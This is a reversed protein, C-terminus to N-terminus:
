GTIEDRNLMELVSIGEHGQVGIELTHIFELRPYIRYLLISEVMTSTQAHLFTSELEYLIMGDDCFRM